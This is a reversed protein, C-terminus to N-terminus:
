HTDHAYQEGLIWALDALAAQEHSEHDRSVIMGTEANVVLWKGRWRRTWDALRGDIGVWHRLFKFVKRRLWGQPLVVGRREPEHTEVIIPDPHEVTVKYPEITVIIPYTM